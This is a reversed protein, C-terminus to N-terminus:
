HTWVETIKPEVVMPIIKCFVNGAKQMYQKLKNQIKESIELPCEVVIEDHVANCIKVVYLLNNEVIWEFFYILALKTMEAATGQIPYNKSNREINGKIIFYQKVLLKLESKFLASNKKKEEKYIDWFGHENIQKELNRFEEINYIFTKAKSVNNTQIYGKIFSEKIKKDFYKKKLPFAKELADIFEQAEEQTKNLDDKVTYASGGYDLKLNLIKGIQRYKSYPHANHLKMAEENGDIKPPIKIERGEIVSYLKSTVMSHTDGDGYLYFEVLSPDKSFEATIRPEQQSYDGVILINDKEAKFCSRHRKDSPINQLNPRDNQPNKKDTNGSSIRGTNLIQMYSTHVRKSVKNIHREFDSGYTSVQKAIKSYKLYLPIIEHKNKQKSLHRQDVSKKKIGKEYVTLDIGLYTFFKIVQLSSSWLINCTIGEEFLNLQKNIFKSESYNDIVYQNLENIINNLNNEDEKSKELWQNRDLYFGCHVTYALPLVFKNELNLYNELDKNKVEILQQERIKELYKVDDAAYRIVRDSLGEKYISGRIDKNLHIKLYKYAISDLAKSFVGSPYGRTLVAETLFTDYVNPTYLKNKFLFKLDFQANQWIFLKNPNILLDKYLQINISQTDIVYQNDYNGLQLSLLSCNYEDFGTTETDASIISLKNLYELSDKVSCLQIGSNKPRDFLELNNTVLYIM